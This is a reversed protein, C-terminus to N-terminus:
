HTTKSKTAPHALYSANSCDVDYKAKQQLILWTAQMVAIRMMNQQIPNSSDSILSLM